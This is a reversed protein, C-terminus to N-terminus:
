SPARCIQPRGLRNDFRQRIMRPLGGKSFQVGNCVYPQSAKEFCHLLRCDVRKAVLNDVFSRITRSPFFRLRGQLRCSRDQKRQRM